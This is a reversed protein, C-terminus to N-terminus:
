FSWHSLYATRCVAIAWSRWGETSNTCTADVLCQVSWLKQYFKVQVLTKFILKSECKNVKQKWMFFGADTQRPPEAWICHHVLLLYCFFFMLPLVSFAGMLQLLLRSWSWPATLITRVLFDCFCRQILSVQAAGLHGPCYRQRLLFWFGGVEKCPSTRWGLQRRHRDATQKVESLWSDVVCLVKVPASEFTSVTHCTRGQKGRM